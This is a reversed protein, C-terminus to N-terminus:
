MGEPGECSVYLPDFEVCDNAADRKLVGDRELLYMARGVDPNQERLPQLLRNVGYTKNSEDIEHALTILVVTCLAKKFCPKKIIDKNLWFFESLM